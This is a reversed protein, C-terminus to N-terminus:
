NPHRTPSGPTLRERQRLRMPAAKAALGSTTIRYCLDVGSGSSEIWGQELLKAVTKHAHPLNSARTREGNRLYQMFQRQPHTM